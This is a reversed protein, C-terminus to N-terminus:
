HARVDGCALGYTAITGATTALLRDVTSYLRPIGEKQPLKACRRCIDRIANPAM